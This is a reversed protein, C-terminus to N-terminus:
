ALDSIICALVSQVIPPGEWLVARALRSCNLQLDLGVMALHQHLCICM